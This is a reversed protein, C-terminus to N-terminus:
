QKEYLDLGEMIARSLKEVATKDYALFVPSPYEIMIAPADMSSLLPVPFERSQVDVSLANKITDGVARALLRSQEVHRNQRLSLSYLKVTVDTTSDDSLATAVAAQESVSSHISIFVDSKKSNSFLIRETISAFQDTKRTLFVEYGKKTLDSSLRKALLLSIDKEKAQQSVIGYDYGGHGADIVISKIKKEPVPSVQTTEDRVFRTKLDIILRAPSSLKFVRVDDISRLNITLFRDFKMVDYMFNIQKKLEFSDPFEIKISSLTAITNANLIFRDDSEVVIRIMNENRSFRLSVVNMKESYVSSLSMFIFLFILIGKKMASVNEM